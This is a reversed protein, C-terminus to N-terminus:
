RRGRVADRRWLMMSGLVLIGFALALLVYMHDYIRPAAEQIQPEGNDEGSSAQTDQAGLTGTGQVEATFSAAKVNYISAQTNPERGLLDVGDGQLTVGPPAVLRLPVSSDLVRGSFTLPTANPLTYNVDFRTEGPVVPYDIKYIHERKTATATRNLPMGGPPTIQLPVSQPAPGPIWVEASGASPSNFTTKTQNEFIFTDTVNLESGTPQLIILHQAAHDLKADKTSDYVAVEVGTTPTGPPVMQTYLVGSYIAQLLNPRGEGGKDFHFHGQADTKATGLQQMGGEGPSMLMLITNPQPAGTTQNVVTGDVAAMLPIAALLIPILASKM